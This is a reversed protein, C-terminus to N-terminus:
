LCKRLQPPQGIALRFTGLREGTQLSVDLDLIRGDTTGSYRAPQKEETPDKRVPGGERVFTGRVDFRGSEDLSLPEDLSGHACDFEVAAGTDLVSLSV